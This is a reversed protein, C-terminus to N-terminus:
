VGYKFSFKLEKRSINKPKFPDVFVWGQKSFTGYVKGTNLNKVVLDGYRYNPRIKLVEFYYKGNPKKILDGIKLDIM